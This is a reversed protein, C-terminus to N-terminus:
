KNIYFQFIRISVYSILAGLVMGGVVDSVWHVGLYIRSGAVLFIGLICLFNFVKRKIGRLHDDFIYILMVFFLTSATAHYSPFSQGLVSVVAMAPRNVDFFIKLFYTALAGVFLVLVFLFSYRANRVFYILTAVLLVIAMFRSFSGVDTVDFFSTVFYMFDTMGETRNSVFYNQVFTDIFNMSKLKGM